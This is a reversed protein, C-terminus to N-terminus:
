MSQRCIKIDVMEHPRACSMAVAFVRMQDYIRPNNVDKIYPKIRPVVKEQGKPQGYIKSHYRQRDAADQQLAVGTDADDPRNDDLWDVFPSRNCNAEMVGAGAVPFSKREGNTHFCNLEFPWYWQIVDTTGVEFDGNMVTRMGGVMVTTMTDGSAPHAWGLTQAYGMPTYDYIYGLVDGTEEFEEDTFHGPASNPDQFMEIILRKDSISRCFHYMYTMMKVHLQGHTKGDYMGLNSIVRPYANNTKKRTERVWPRGVCVVMEDKHVCYRYKNIQLEKANNKPEILNLMDDTSVRCQQHHKCASDVRTNTASALSPQYPLFNDSM